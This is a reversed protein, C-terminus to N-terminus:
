KFVVTKLEKALESSMDKLKMLMKLHTTVADVDGKGSALKMEDQSKKCMRILKALKFRKLSNVSDKTFNLEPMPQTQLTVGWKKQWNESYENPSTSLDLALKAIEEEEHGIYFQPTLPKEDVLHQLSLTAVRQYLDNDFDELVDQINSLVFQGVTINEEKDFVV